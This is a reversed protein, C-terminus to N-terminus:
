FSVGLSAGLGGAAGEFSRGFVNTWQSTGGALRAVGLVDTEMQVHVRDTLPVRIHAGIGGGAFLVTEHLNQDRLGGASQQVEGLEGIVCGALSVAWARYVCGALRGAVLSSSVDATAVSTPPGIGTQQPAWRLAGTLSWGGWGWEQRQFGGELTV